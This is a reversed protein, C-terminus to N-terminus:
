TATNGTSTVVLRDPYGGVDGGMMLRFDTQHPTGFIDCYKVVGFCYIAATGGRIADIEVKTLAPGTSELSHKASSGPLVVAVSKAEAPLADHARQPQPFHDVGLAIQITLQLAPSQGANQFELSVKPHQGVATGEIKPSRLGVYARLQRKATDRAIRNAQYALGLAILVLSGSIGGIWTSWYTLRASEAAADAAKWQACLESDKKDDGNACEAEFEQTNASPHPSQANSIGIMWGFGMSVFALAALAGALVVREGTGM